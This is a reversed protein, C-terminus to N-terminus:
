IQSAKEEEEAAQLQEIIVKLSNETDDNLWVKLKTGKRNATAEISQVSEMEEGFGELGDPNGLATFIHQKLLKSGETAISGQLGTEGNQVQEILEETGSLYLMDDNVWVYASFDSKQHAMSDTKSYDNIARYIGNNMQEIKKEEIGIDILKQIATKGELKAMFFLTGDKEADDTPYAALMIDGQLADLLEKSSLGMKKLETEAIGKSYKEILLQNIGNVDFATAMLFLPTGKPALNAFDTKVEDRFLMSLDNAIRGKFDIIAESEILGKEFTLYHQIYNNKLDEESYNLLATTEASGPMKTIFDSSFWNFVDYNENMAKLLHKNNAASNEPKTDLYSALTEELEAQNDSFGIIAVNEDWVVASSNGPFAINYSQSAPLAKVEVEVDELLTEFATADALSMTIAGFQETASSKDMTLYINKDLDVGSHSPNEMVKALVPNAEKAESIMEQYGATQKIADFDAKAMLQSPKFASVMAVNDPIYSLSDETPATDKQCSWMTGVVLLALFFRTIHKAKM